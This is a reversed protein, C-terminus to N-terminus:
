WSDAVLSNKLIFRREADWAYAHLAGCKCIHICDCYFTLVDSCEAEWCVWFATHCGLLSFQQKGRWVGRETAASHATRATNAPPVLAKQLPLFTSSSPLSLSINPNPKKNQKTKKHYKGHQYLMLILVAHEEQFFFLLSVSSLGQSLLM